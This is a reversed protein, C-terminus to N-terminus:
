MMQAIPSRATRDPRVDRTVEVRIERKADRLRLESGEALERNVKVFGCSLGKPTFGEPRDPSAVSYVRGERRGIGMDSVCTLVRGLEEGEPTFVRAEGGTVKRLDFGLFPYTHEARGRARELAERGVFAKTFGGDPGLPLAFEWPHHIFPWPGIDQHSLPLVAGARLSDRAALGCPLAGFAAGAEMVAEWVGVAAERQVYLEFGFEGTYGTRSLLVPTGDALRVADAQPAAPDFHGKFTFYAMGEFAAGPDALVKSLVKAAAPGQVDIKGLRDTLDAIEVAGGDAYRRLHDAVAPGMAANVVSLYVGPALEGVIADDVVGGEEDLYVGYACRKPASPGRWSGLARGLDRTHCRQLLAFADPGSLLLAAMHSTDFVGVGQLVALHEARAGAPYWVPMDYGGFEATNAGHSLHWDYLATTKKM